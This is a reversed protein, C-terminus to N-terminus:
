VIVASDINTFVNEKLSNKDVATIVTRNKISVVLAVDDLLVLSEKAGKQAAREVGSMVRDWEAHGLEINRSQLRTQAHGSVKLRSDLIGAFDPRNPGPPATNPRPADVRTQLLETVRANQIPNSM